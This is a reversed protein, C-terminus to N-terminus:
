VASASEGVEEYVPNKPLSRGLEALKKTLDMAREQLAQGVEAGAPVQAMERALEGFEAILPKARGVAEMAEVSISEVRGQVGEAM